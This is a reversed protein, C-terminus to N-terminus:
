EPTNQRARDNALRDALINGPCDAHGRVWQWDINRGNALADLQRWLDPNKVKRFDNKRWNGIWETMGRQVYQSDTFLCLACQEPLKQLARIVATLEMRNNTTDPEFGSLAQQKGNILIVAAWGGPGPNGICAGDTYVEAVSTAATKTM